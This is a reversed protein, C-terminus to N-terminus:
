AVLRPKGVFWHLPELRRSVHFEQRGLAIRLLSSDGNVVANCAEVPWVHRCRCLRFPVTRPAYSDITELIELLLFRSDLRDLSFLLVLELPYKLTM